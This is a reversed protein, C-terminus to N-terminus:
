PRRRCRWRWGPSRASGCSAKTALNSRRADAHAACCPACARSAPEMCALACLARGCYLSAALACGAGWCVQGMDVDGEEKQLQVLLAYYCAQSHYLAPFSALAMGLLENALAAVAPAATGETATAAGLGGALNAILACALQEAYALAPAPAAGATSM